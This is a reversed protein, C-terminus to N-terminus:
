DRPAGPDRGLFISILIRKLGSMYPRRPQSAARGRIAQRFGLPNFDLYLEREEATVPVGTSFANAYWVWHDGEKEFATMLLERRRINM